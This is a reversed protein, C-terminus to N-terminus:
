DSDPLVLERSSWGHPYAWRGTAPDAEAEDLSLLNVNAIEHIYEDNWGGLTTISRDYNRTDLMTLDVLKGLRFNRWIRLNDDLAVQRIPQYEFYARVANMKLQDVSVGGFENFTEETNNMASAGDRYVNNSVEHDDWTPIWPFNQHALSLDSDTRYQALRARFDYLTAIQREPYAARPDRNVEGNEYEYIYDGLHIFYDVEDKRAANGYANFYGNPYNSCSFVAMSFNTTSDDEAPATKTRGLPSTNGTGCVTFQYYYTTFPALGDAEVKVTYDLDSTTYVEGGNVVQTMQDDTAIKWDLCIPNSSIQIYRETEHSYLPVNGEVTINSPDNDMMPAVRTWLIVSDAYPDGSAVNHTFNLTEPDWDTSDRKELHRKTVKDVNIGLAPHETSPSRYNLNKHYSASAGTGLLALVALTGVM